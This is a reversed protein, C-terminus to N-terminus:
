LWAAGRVGSSDGHLARRIPTSLNDTFVYRGLRQPVSEYIFGLNSLGGGIVIVNPDLVNILQALARALRDAFRSLTALASKDDASAAEAIAAPSLVAGSQRQHDASLGPGSVWSEVCGSKGCWCVPGPYEDPSQWPLPNHGWEGAIANAGELVQRELVIGGGCGTGLIVGFVLRAGAGAGDTAESLAFCNADNATKVPRGMRNNLDRNFPKGNLWTSNANKVLGTVPSVVGPIGIGISAAPGCSNELGDILYAIANLTGDYDGHPTPMRTRQLIRGSSDLAAAEIKTGGLDVGIRVKEAM